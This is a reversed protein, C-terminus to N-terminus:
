APRPAGQGARTGRRGLGGQGGGGRRGRPPGTGSGGQEGRLTGAGPASFRRSHTLGGRRRRLSYVDRVPRESVVEELPQPWPRGLARAVDFAVTLPAEVLTTFRLQSM